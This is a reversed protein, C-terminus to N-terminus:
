NPYRFKKQEGWPMKFFISVYYGDTVRVSVDKLTPYAKEVMEKIQEAKKPNFGCMFKLNSRIQDYDLPKARAESNLSSQIGGLLTNALSM